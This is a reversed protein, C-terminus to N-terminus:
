VHTGKLASRVATNMMNEALKMTVENLEDIKARILHHDDSHYVLLLHNVADSIQKREDDSLDFWADNARAKETATLITDAELRAERLFRHPALGAKKFHGNMPKSVVKERVPEYALQLANYGDSEVTKVQTVTCPGAEVITVPVCSGDDTFVQTMRGKRGLIFQVM